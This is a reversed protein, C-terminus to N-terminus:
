MLYRRNSLYQSNNTFRYYIQPEKDVRYCKQPPTSTMIYAYKDTPAKPAPTQWADLFGASLKTTEIPIWYSNRYEVFREIPLGIVAPDNEEINAMM